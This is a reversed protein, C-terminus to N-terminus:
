YKISEVIIFKQFSFYSLLICNSDIIYYVVLNVVEDTPYDIPFSSQRLDTYFSSCLTSKKLGASKPSSM